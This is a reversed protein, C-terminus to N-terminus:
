IGPCKKAERLPFRRTRQPEEKTDEPGSYGSRRRELAFHQIQLEAPRAVPAPSIRTLTPEAGLPALSASSAVASQADGTGALIRPLERLAQAAHGVKARAQHEVRM